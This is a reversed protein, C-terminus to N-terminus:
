LKPLAKMVQADVVTSRSRAFRYFSKLYPGVMMKNEIKIRSGTNGSDPYQEIYYMGGNAEARMVIHKNLRTYMNIATQQQEPTGHWETGEQAYDMKAYDAESIPTTMNGKPVMFQFRAYASGKHLRLKQGNHVWFVTNKSETKYFGDALQTAFVEENQPTAANSVVPLVLMGLAFLSTKFLTNM